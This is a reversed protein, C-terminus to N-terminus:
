AVAQATEDDELEATPTFVEVSLKPRVAGKCVLKPLQDIVATRFDATADAVGTDELLATRADTDLTLAETFVECLLEKASERTVGMRRLLLGITAKTLVKVTAAKETDESVNITGTVRVMVDVSHTGVGVEARASALERKSLLKALTLQTLPTATTLDM